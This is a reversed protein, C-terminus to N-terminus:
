QFVMWLRKAGSDNSAVSDNSSAISDTADPHNSTAVSCLGTAAPHNSSAASDINFTIYYSAASDITIAVSDYSASYCHSAISDTVLCGNTLFFKAYRINWEFVLLCTVFGASLM